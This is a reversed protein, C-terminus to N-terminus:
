KDYEVLKYHKLTGEFDTIDKELTNPDVEYTSLVQEKIQDLSLNDQLLKVIELGIPNLSFSDGTGPDFLFGSDSLALNKRITM